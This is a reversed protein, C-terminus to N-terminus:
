AVAGNIVTCMSGFFGLGHGLEHLVVTMLDYNSGANGDTGYYWTFTSSFNAVIDHPKRYPHRHLDTGAIKNAIAVAFGRTRRGACRRFRPQHPTAGASGLVGPGLPVWNATVRIPVASQIQSAWVDVAAQFAAQAQPTFGNYTVIFTSLFETPRVTLDKPAPVYFHGRYPGPPDVIIPGPMSEGQPQAQASLLASLPGFWNSGGIICLAAIAAISLRKFSQHM